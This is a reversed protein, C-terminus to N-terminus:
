LREANNKKSRKFSPYVSKIRPQINRDSGSSRMCVEFQFGSGYQEHECPGLVALVVDYFGSKSRRIIDGVKSNPGLPRVREHEQGTEKM